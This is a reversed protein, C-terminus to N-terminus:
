HAGAGVTARYWDVTSRIGEALGIRPEWGLARIRSTDLLKRPTGDPRSIDQVISGRYGTAEAVMEALKRIPVDSSTGVNIPDPDDYRDLLMVAARGLDDVHLFERRPLGSGWISVEEAGSRRADHFRRIMAPLVHASNLDFNDGPGYLNTPM